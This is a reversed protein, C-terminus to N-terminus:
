KKSYQIQYLQSLQNSFYSKDEFVSQGILTNPLSHNQQDTSTRCLRGLHQDTSRLIITTSTISAVDVSTRENEWFCTNGELM